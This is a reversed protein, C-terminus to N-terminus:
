QTSRGSIFASQMKPKPMTLSQSSAQEGEYYEDWIGLLLRRDIESEIKYGKLPQYDVLSNDNLNITTKTVLGPHFLSKELKNKELHKKGKPISNDSM